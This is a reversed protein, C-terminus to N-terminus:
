ASWHRIGDAVLYWKISLGGCRFCSSKGKSKSNAIILKWWCSMYMYGSLSFITVRTKIGLSRLCYIYKSCAELRSLHSLSLSIHYVAKGKERYFFFISQETYPEERAGNLCQVKWTPCGPLLSTFPLTKLPMVGQGKSPCHLNRCLSPAGKHMYCYSRAPNWTMYFSWASLQMYSHGKGASKVSYMYTGPALAIWCMHCYPLSQKNCGWELM